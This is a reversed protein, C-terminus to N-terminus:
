LVCVVSSNFEHVKKGSFNVGDRWQVALTSIDLHWARRCFAFHCVSWCCTSIFHEQFSSLRAGGAFRYRGCSVRVPFGAHIVHVLCGGCRCAAEIFDRWGGRGACGSSVGLGIARGATDACPHGNTRSDLELALNRVAICQHDFSCDFGRQDASASLDFIRRFRIMLRGSSAPTRTLDSTPDYAGAVYRFGHPPWEYQASRRRASAKRWSVPRPPM